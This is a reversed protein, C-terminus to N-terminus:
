VVATRFRRAAPTTLQQLLVVVSLVQQECDNQTTDVVGFDFM